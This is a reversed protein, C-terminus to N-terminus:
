HYAEKTKSPGSLQDQQDDSDTLSGSEQEDRSDTVSWSEQGGDLDSVSGSDQEDAFDSISEQEDNEAGYNRKGTNTQQGNKKLCSM